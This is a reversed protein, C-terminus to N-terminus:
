NNTSLNNTQKTKNKNNTQRNNHKNELIIGGM